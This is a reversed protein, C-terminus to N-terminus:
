TYTETLQLVQRHWSSNERGMAEGASEALQRVSLWAEPRGKNTTTTVIDKLDASIASLEKAIDESLQNRYALGLRTGLGHIAAAFAPGAATVLLFYQNESRFFHCIVVVLSVLFLITSIGTLRTEVCHLKRHNKLHYTKQDDVVCDLWRAADVPSVAESVDPLGQDRVARKAASLAWSPHDKSHPEDATKFASPLVFLPLCM